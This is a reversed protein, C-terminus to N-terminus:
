PHSSATVTKRIWAPSRAPPEKGLVRGLVLSKVARFGGGSTLNFEEVAEQDVQFPLFTGLM